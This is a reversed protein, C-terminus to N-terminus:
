ARVQPPRDFLPPIRSLFAAPPHHIPGGSQELGIVLGPQHPIFSLVHHCHSGHHGDANHQDNDAGATMAPEHGDHGAHHHDHEHMGVAEAGVHGHFGLATAWASQLPIILVIILAIFRRM